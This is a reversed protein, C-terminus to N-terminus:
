TTCLLCIRHLL